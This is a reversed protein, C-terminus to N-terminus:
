QIYGWSVYVSYEIANMNAKASDQVLGDMLKFEDSELQTKLFQLAFRYTTLASGDKAHRMSHEFLGQEKGILKELHHVQEMISDLEFPIKPLPASM